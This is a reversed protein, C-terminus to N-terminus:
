PNLNSYVLNGKNLYGFYFNIEEAINNVVNCHKNTWESARFGLRTIEVENSFLNLIQQKIQESDFDNVLVGNVNDTICERIGPVNTGIAPIGCAMAELLVKPNGEYESLIVFCKASNYYMPLDANDVRTNYIINAHKDTVAKVLHALSGKGIILVKLNIASVVNLLLKINKQQELRGVFILDYKKPAILPKFVNLNITNCMSLIKCVSINYKLMIYSAAEPSTTLILDCLRFYFRETLVTKLSNKKFHSYYYGMRIVLPINYFLKLLLGFTSASFQNTKALLVKRFDSKFIVLASLNYILNQLTYPIKTSIWSPMGLIKINPYNCLYRDDNRGYSYIILKFNAKKSLLNYYNLERSLQGLEDWKELSMNPTMLLLLSDRVM